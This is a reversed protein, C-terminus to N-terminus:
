AESGEAFIRGAAECVVNFMTHQLSLATDIICLMEIIELHMQLVFLFVSLLKKLVKQTSPSRLVSGKGVIQVEIKSPDSYQNKQLITQYIFTLFYFCGERSEDLINLFIYTKLAIKPNQKSSADLKRLQRVHGRSLYLFVGNTSLISDSIPELLVFRKM